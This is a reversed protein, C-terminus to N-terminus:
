TAHNEGKSIKFLANLKAADKIGPASEAGSSLDLAFPGAQKAAEVINNVSLGGALILPIGFKAAKAALAWNSTKGTGGYQAGTAADILIYDVAGQYAGIAEIDKETAPRFAKIIFGGFYKKISLCEEPTDDGHLQIGKLGAEGAINLVDPMQNVFVGVAPAALHKIIGAAKASTLHRPSKPYFVFGLAWAGLKQALEADEKRTLGCIKIRM